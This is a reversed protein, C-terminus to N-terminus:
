VLVWVKIYTLRESRWQGKSSSVRLVPLRSTKAAQGEPPELIPSVAPTAICPSAKLEEPTTADLSSLSLASSASTKVYMPPPAEGEEAMKRHGQSRVIWENSLLELNHTPLSLHPRPQQGLLTLARLRFGAPTKLSPIPQLFLSFPAQSLADDKLSHAHRFEAGCLRETPHLLAEKHGM